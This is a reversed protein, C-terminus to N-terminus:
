DADRLSQLEVSMTPQCGYTSTEESLKAVRLLLGFENPNLDMPFGTSDDCGQLLVWYTQTHLTTMGQNDEM